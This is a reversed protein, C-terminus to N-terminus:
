REKILKHGRLIRSLEGVRSINKVGTVKVKILTGFQEEQWVQEREREGCKELRTERVMIRVGLNERRRGNFSCM